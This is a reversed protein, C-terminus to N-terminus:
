VFVWRWRDSLTGTVVHTESWVWGRVEAWLPLPFVLGRVIQGRLVQVVGEESSQTWSQLAETLIVTRVIHNLIGEGLVELPNGTGGLLFFLSDM